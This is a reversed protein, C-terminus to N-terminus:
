SPAVLGAVAGSMPASSSYGPGLFVARIADRFAGLKRAAHRARAGRCISRASM